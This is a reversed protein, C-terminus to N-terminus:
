EVGEPDDDDDSETSTQGVEKEKCTVEFYNRIDGQKCSRRQLLFENEICHLTMVDRTSMYTCQEAFRVFGAIHKAAQEWTVKPENNDDDDDACCLVTLRDKSQKFGKGDGESESALTTRPLCRYFLGTEDANYIQESMLNHEEVIKVFRNVFEEASPLNASKSEGSIDLKRIGHRVKFRHLWGDSFQCAGEEGM